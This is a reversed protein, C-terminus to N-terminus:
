LKRLYDKQYVRLHNNTNLSKEAVARWFATGVYSEFIFQLVSSTWNQQDNIKNIELTIELGAYIHRTCTINGFRELRSCLHKQLSTEFYRSGTAKHSAKAAHEPLTSYLSCCSYTFTGYHSTVRLIKCFSCRSFVHLPHYLEFMRQFYVADTRQTSFGFLVLWLKPSHVMQM